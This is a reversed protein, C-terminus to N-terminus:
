SEPYLDAVSRISYSPKYAFRNLDEIRTDGSLVLITEMGSELGAIIDTDMRDGIMVADESHIGLYNLASRMMFPNPKGVFFPATGTAKEILAAMAGSAPILGDQARGTPEPNTCIFHAGNLILNVARTVQDFDYQDTGGLVVFDPYQDTIVFNFEQLASILGSEGIVYASGDPKQSHLYRATAMASTFINETQVPLGAKQLKFALNTPTFRSNNTLLLFNMGRERLQQIFRNAGPIMQDGRILVGEMAILYSKYENIRLEESPKLDM